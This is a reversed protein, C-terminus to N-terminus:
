LKFMRETSGNSRPSDADDLLKGREDDSGNGEGEGTIKEIDENMKTSQYYIFGLVNVTYGLLQVLTTKEGLFIVSFMIIAVNRVQGAAKFTLSGCQKIVGLTSTMVLFGLISVWVFPWPNAWVIALDGNLTIERQEFIAVGVALFFFNAPCTYFLGELLGFRRPGMFHQFLVMRISESVEGVIMLLLGFMTFTEETVCAVAMGLTMTGVAIVKEKTATDLGCVVLMCFVVCPSLSKMMQIFSVSLYLYLQNGAAFTVATFFGIPFVTLLWERLTLVRELKVSGTIVLLAAIFWSLLPGTASVIIPYPFKVENLIKDNVIIILGSTIGWFLLFLTAKLGYITRVLERSTKSDHLDMSPDFMARLVTTFAPMKALM